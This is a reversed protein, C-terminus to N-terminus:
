EWSDRLEKLQADVEEIPQKTMSGKLQDWDVKEPKEEPSKRVRILKLSELDQLLKIAGSNLVDITLTQIMIELKIQLSLGLDCGLLRPCKWHYM